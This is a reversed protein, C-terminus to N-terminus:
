DHQKEQHTKELADSFRAKNIRGEVVIDNAAGLLLLHETDDCKVLVLRHKPSLTLVESISLRRQGGSKSGGSYGLGFRRALAAILAILALVFLLAFFIYLYGSFDLNM